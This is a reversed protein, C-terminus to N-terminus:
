AAVARRLAAAPRRCTMALLPQRLWDRRVELSIETFAAHALQAYAAVPRRPRSGLPELVVLRGGPALNEAARRLAALALDDTMRGLRKHALVVDCPGNWAAAAEGQWVFVREGPAVFASRRVFDRRDLGLLGRLGLM